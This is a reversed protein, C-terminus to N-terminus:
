DNAMSSTQGALGDWLCKHANMAVLCMYLLVLLHWVVIYFKARGGLVFLFTYSSEFKSRNYM